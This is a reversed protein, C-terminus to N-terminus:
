IEQCSYAEPLEATLSLLLNKTQQAHPHIQVTLSSLPRLHSVFTCQIAGTDMQQGAPVLVQPVQWNCVVTRPAREWVEHLWWSREKRGWGAGQAVEAAAFHSALTHKQNQHSKKKERQCEMYHLTVTFTPFM